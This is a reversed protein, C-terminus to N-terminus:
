HICRAHPTRFFQAFISLYIHYITVDSFSLVKTARASVVYQNLCSVTTRHLLIKAVNLMSLIGGLARGNEPWVM